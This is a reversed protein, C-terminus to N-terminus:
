EISTDETDRLGMLATVQILNFNLRSVEFRPDSSVPLQSRSFVVDTRSGMSAACIFQFSEWPHTRISNPIAIVGIEPELHSIVCFDKKYMNEREFYSIKSESLARKGSWDLGHVNSPKCEMSKRTYNICCPDKQTVYKSLNSSIRRLRGYLWKTQWLASRRPHM